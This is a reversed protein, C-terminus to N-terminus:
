VASKAGPVDGANLGGPHAVHYMCGGLSRNKWTDVLDFVLPSDVPITPHLCVAAALRSLARRRRIRRRRRDSAAARAPRQLHRCPASRDYGSVKVQVREVSSDVYRLWAAAPRNKASCTGRNSRRDAAELHVRRQTVDGLLPFASSSIRRSGNTTPVCLGSRRLEEMVDRFDQRRLAAAHISRAAADGLAGAKGSVSTELLAGGAGRLLLQQVLSMERMRRCKLRASSSWGLGAPPRTPRSCSTSASSRGIRTARSM